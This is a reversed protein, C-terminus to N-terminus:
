SATALVLYGLHLFMICFVTSPACVVWALCEEVGATLSRRTILRTKQAAGLLCGRTGSRPPRSPNTYTNSLLPSPLDHGTGNRFHSVSYTLQAFRANLGSTCTDPGHPSKASRRKSTGEPSHQGQRGSFDALRVPEELVQRCPGSPLATPEHHMHLASIHLSTSNRKSLDAGEIHNSLIRKWGLNCM